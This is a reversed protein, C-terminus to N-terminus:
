IDEDHGYSVVFWLGDDILDNAFTGAPTWPSSTSAPSTPGIAVVRSPKIMTASLQMIEYWCSPTNDYLVHSPNNIDDNYDFAYLHKNDSSDTVTVLWGMRDELNPGGQSTFDKFGESLDLTFNPDTDDGKLDSIDYEGQVHYQAGLNGYNKWVLANDGTYANGTVPDTWDLKLWDKGQEGNEQINQRTLPDSYLVFINDGQRGIATVTNIPVQTVNASQGGLYDVTVNQSATLLRNNWTIKDIRKVEFTDIDGNKYRIKLNSDQIPNGYEDELPPYQTYFDISSIQKLEFNVTEGNTYEFIVGYDDLGVSRLGGINTILYGNDIDDSYFVYLNGNDDVSFHDISRVLFQDDQGATYSIIISCAPATSPIKVARWMTEGSPTEIVTGIQDESELVDPFNTADHAAEHTNGDSDTWSEDSDIIYGSKINVWYLNQLYGEARYIDGIECKIGHEWQNITRNQNTFTIDDIVRYPWRGLHETIVEAATYDDEGRTNYDQISYTFYKYGSVISNGFGDQQEGTESGTEIKIDHVDSGHKGDPITFDWKYWLPHVTSAPTEVVGATAYPGHNVVEAEEVHKPIDIAIYGGTTDGHQDRINIYGVKIQDDYKGTTLQELVIGSTSGYAGTGGATSQAQFQSWQEITLEPTRGEPGVIQGVYIAGAGPHQVYEMWREHFQEDTETNQKVPVSVITQNYDFGRRYLLGNEFNSRGTELVTDILVYQGYNAGTYAGGGAFAECMQQVSSYRQVIHYTRGQKGGYFSSM